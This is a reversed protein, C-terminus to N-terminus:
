RLLLMKRSQVDARGSKERSHHSVGTPPISRLRYIYIGSAVERGADDRGDWKVTHVGASMQRNALTRVKQGWLSYINLEVRSIASLGAQSAGAPLGAQSGNAPLHFSIATESNFPNPYNQKLTMAQAIEALPEPDLNVIFMLYESLEVPDIRGELWEGNLIRGEYAFSGKALFHYAYYSIHLPQSNILPNFLELYGMNVPEGCILCNWFGYAPHHIVYPAAPQPTTPLNDLMTRLSSALEKGDCIGDGDSDAITSDYGFFSEEAATLGDNDSDDAIHLLHTKMTRYLEVANAKPEGWASSSHKFSGHALSHLNILPISFQRGNEPNKILYVGMYISKGCIACTEFGNGIPQFTIHAHASDPQEALKPFLRILQEAIQPGDPVGDSDTDPNNPYYYLSDEEADTLGDGDSDGSVPLQHPPDFPFLIRKLTDLDARGTHLSGDYSFCGDEMFHLAICPLNITLQRLPNVIEIYGMNVTAGCKQCTELGWALHEIKYPQDTQVTTPLSDIISKFFTTWEAQSSNQVYHAGLFIDESYSLGNGDPDNAVPIYHTSDPLTQGMLSASSLWLALAAAWAWKQRLRKKPHVNAGFQAEYWDLVNQHVPRYYPLLERTARCDSCAWHFLLRQQEKKLNNSIYPKQIFQEVCCAPYGFLFGELRQIDASKGLFTGSFRRSYFDNYRSSTSFVTEFIKKKNLTFRPITEVKLGQRRLWDKLPDNLPKEWRSLPKIKNRTLETLYFFEFDGKPILERSM